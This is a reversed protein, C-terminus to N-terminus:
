LPCNITSLWSQCCESPVCYMSSPINHQFIILNFVTLRYYNKNRQLYQSTSIFLSLVHGKKKVTIRGIFAVWSLTNSFPSTTLVYLSPVLTAYSLFIYSLYHSVRFMFFNLNYHHPFCGGLYRNWMAVTRPFFSRSHFKSRVLPIHIYHCHISKTYMTHYTRTTFTQIPLVPFHLKVSCRGYFYCYLRSPNSFDQEYFFPTSPHLVILWGCPLVSEFETLTPFHANPLEPKSIAAISCEQM